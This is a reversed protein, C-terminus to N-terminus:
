RRQAACHPRQLVTDNKWGGYGILPVQAVRLARQAAGGDRWLFPV